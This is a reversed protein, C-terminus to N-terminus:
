RRTSAYSEGVEGGSGIAVVHILYLRKPKLKGSLSLKFFGFGDTRLGNLWVATQSALNRAIQDAPLPASPVETPRNSPIPAPTPAPYLYSKAPAALKGSWSTTFGYDPHAPTYLAEYIANKRALANIVMAETTQTIDVFLRARVRDGRWDSVDVCLLNTKMFCGLRVHLLHKKPRVVINTFGEERGDESMQQVGVAFDDLEPLSHVVFAGMGNPLTVSTAHSLYDSGAFAMADGNSPSRATVSATTGWSAPSLKSSLVVPPRQGPYPTMSATFPTPIPQAVARASDVPDQTDPDIAYLEVNNQNLPVDVVANGRADLVVEGYTLNSGPSGTEAYRYRLSLSALGYAAHWAYRVRLGAAAAGDLLTGSIIFHATSGFSITPTSTATQLVYRSRASDLVFFNGSRWYGSLATSPLVFSGTAVHNSAEATDNHWFTGGDTTRGVFTVIIGTSADRSFYRYNVRDGPRYSQRDTEQYMALDALTPYYPAFPVISGDSAQVVRGQFDPSPYVGVQVFHGPLKVLGNGGPVYRRIGSKYFELVTIDTRIRMTRVDVAMAADETAGNNILTALTGVSLDQIATRSPSSLQIQYFGAPLAPLDIRHELPSGDAFGPASVFTLLAKANRDLTEGPAGYQESRIVAVVDSLPVQAVTVVISESTKTVIVESLPQGPLVQLDHVVSPQPRTMHASASPASEVALALAVCAIRCRRLM